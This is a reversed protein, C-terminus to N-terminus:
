PVIRIELQKSEVNQTLKKRNWPWGMQVCFFCIVSFFVSILTTHVLTALMQGATWVNFLGSVAQLTMM